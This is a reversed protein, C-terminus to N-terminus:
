CQCIDDKKGVFKTLFIKIQLLGILLTLVRFIDLSVWHIGLM